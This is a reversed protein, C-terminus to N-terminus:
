GLHKKAARFRHLRCGYRAAEVAAGLAVGAFGGVIMIIMKQEYFIEVGFGAIWGVVLGVVIGTMAFEPKQPRQPRQARSQRSQHFPKMNGGPETIVSEMDTITREATGRM